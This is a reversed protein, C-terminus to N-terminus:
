QPRVLRRLEAKMATKLDVFTLPAKKEERNQLLAHQIATSVLDEGLVAVADASLQELEDDWFAPHRAMADMM